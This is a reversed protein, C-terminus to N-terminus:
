SAPILNAKLAYNIRVPLRTRSSFVEQLYRFNGAVRDRGYCFLPTGHKRAVEEAARDGLYLKGRRSTVFGNEWWM